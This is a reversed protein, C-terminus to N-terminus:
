FSPLLSFISNHSQQPAFTKSRIFQHEGAAAVQVSCMLHRPVLQNSGAAGACSVLRGAAGPVGGDEDPPVGETRPWRQGAGRSVPDQGARQYLHGGTYPESFHFISFQTFLLFWDPCNTKRLFIM